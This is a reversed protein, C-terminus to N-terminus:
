NPKTWSVDEKRVRWRDGVRYAKLKGCSIWQRVASASVDLAKALEAPTFYDKTPM